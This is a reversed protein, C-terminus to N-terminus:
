EHADESGEPLLLLPHVAYWIQGGEAYTLINGLHLHLLFEDESERHGSRQFKRLYDWDAATLAIRRIRCEGEIAKQVDEFIVTDHQHLEAWLVASRFLKVLGRLVGGSVDILLDLAGPSVLTELTYGAAQVRRRVVEHLMAYGPEYRAARNKDAHLRVNPLEYIEFDDQLNGAMKYFGYPLTYVARGQLETLVMAHEFIEHALAPEIKDLGDAIVLVECGSREAVDAFILNIRQVMERLIAGACLAEREKGTLELSPRRTKLEKDLPLPAAPDVRACVLTALLMDPDLRYTADNRVQGILTSLATVMEQWYRPDPALQMESAVKYAGGGLALLLDLISFHYVDLSANLDIWIVTYAERGLERGLRVLASTKGSGRAGALLLPSALRGPKLVLAMLPIPSDEREVYFSEWQEGALPLLPNFRNVLATWDVPTTNM